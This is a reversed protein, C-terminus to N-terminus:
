WYGKISDKFGLELVDEIGQPRPKGMLGQFGVRDYVTAAATNENAVYLAVTDYPATDHPARGFRSGEEYLLHQCVFRVLLEAFGLKRHKPATHVKTITAHRSTNRTVAVISAVEHIGSSLEVECLYVQGRKIYTAAELRAGDGGIPFDSDLAFDYCQVAVDEMDAATAQRLTFPPRPRASVPNHTLSDRTLYSLVAEYYPIPHSMIGTENHWCAAFTKTIITPSFASFVRTTPVVSRLHRILVTLRPVLYDRTLSPPDRRSWLFIPLNDIESKTCSLVLDLTPTSPSLPYSSSQSWVTLWLHEHTSVDRVARCQECDDTRLFEHSKQSLPAGSLTRRHARQEITRLKLAQPLITNAARERIVLTSEAVDLFDTASSHVHCSINLGPLTSSPM